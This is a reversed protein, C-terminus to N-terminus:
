ANRPAPAPRIADEGARLAESVHRVGEAVTTRVGRTEQSGRVREDATGVAVRRGGGHPRGSRVGGRSRMKTRGHKRAGGDSIRLDSEDNGPVSREAISTGTPYGLPNSINAILSTATLPVCGSRQPMLAGRSQGQASAPSGPPRARRERRLARGRPAAPDPGGRQDLSAMLPRPPRRLKLTHRTV